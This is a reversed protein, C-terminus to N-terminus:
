GAVSVGARATRTDRASEISGTAGSDPHGPGCEPEMATRGSSNGKPLNSKQLLRTSVPGTRQRAQHLFLLGACQPRSAPSRRCSRIFTQPSRTCKSLICGVKHLLAATLSSPYFPPCGTASCSAYYSTLSLPSSPFSACMQSPAFQMQGTSPYPATNRLVQVQQVKLPSDNRFLRWPPPTSPIICRDATFRLHQAASRVPRLGLTHARVSSGNMVEAAGLSPQGRAKSTCWLSTPHM